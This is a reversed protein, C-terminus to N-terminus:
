NKPTDFESGNVTPAVTESNSIERVRIQRYASRMSVYTDLSQKELEDITDLYDKRMNLATAGMRAYDAEPAWSPNRTADYMRMPDVFWDVASGVADRANSPGLLPLVLYPGEGLGAVAMTQGFDENHYPYGWDTAVDFVGLLGITSNILFRMGTDGARVWEGQLSDNALVVPAKLNRLVNSVRSQLYDPTGDRYAYALPRLLTHDVVYNVGYITRNLPELPDNDSFTGTSEGKSAGEEGAVAAQPSMGLLMVALAGAAVSAKLAGWLVRSSKRAARRSSVFRIM